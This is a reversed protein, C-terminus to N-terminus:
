RNRPWPLAGGLARAWRMLIPRRRALRLARRHASWALADDLPPLPVEGYRRAIALSILHDALHPNKPLLPGHLYTGFANRYVAGEGGDEGNNGYGALVRGLPRAGPGLYTRGGHNEFGVLTGREWSVAVNGIFRRVGPGPHVTWADFLGLGPLEEGEATRYFRGLLQYGGCVALVVAGDEVAERLAPGKQAVLDCAVLRQERDQAGGLFYIDYRVPDLPDGPGLEEVELEIGRAACRERLVIINGRDGYINMHRPYLWSLRLRM